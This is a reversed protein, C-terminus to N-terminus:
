NYIEAARKQHEVTVVNEINIKSKSVGQLTNYIECGDKGEDQMALVLALPPTNFNLYVPPDSEPKKPSPWETWNDDIWVTNVNIGSLKM